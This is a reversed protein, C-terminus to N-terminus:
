RKKKLRFACEGRRVLLLGAKYTGHGIEPFLPKFTNNHERIFVSCNQSLSGEQFDWANEHPTLVPWVPISITRITDIHM